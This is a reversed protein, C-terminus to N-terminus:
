EGHNKKSSLSDLALMCELQEEEMECGSIGAESAPLSRKRFLSHILGHELPDHSLVRDIVGKVCEDVM